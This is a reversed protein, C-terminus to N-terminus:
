NLHPYTFGIFHVANVAFHVIIAAEIRQTVYYAYAYALGAVTALLVYTGGGAIHAAGFLLASCAVALLPGYRFRALSLALRDQLLGRFFAEEAVVTFFLNTSLFLASVQSIKFDPKVYGIATALGLVAIVASLAIPGTQRLLKRWDAASSARTCMFALLVLGAAGKDFNAYQTFPASDASLRLQFLLIPNNFGPLKHLALALALIAAVVGFLLRLNRRATTALYALLCFLALELVAMPSLVASALGSLLAGAAIVMWPLLIIRDTLRLPKLWVAAIAVALLVFTILM